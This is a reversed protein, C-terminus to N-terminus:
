ITKMLIVVRKGIPYKIKLKAIVEKGLYKM